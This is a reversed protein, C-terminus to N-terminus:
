TKIVDFTHPVKWNKDAGVLLGRKRAENELRLMRVGGVARRKKAGGRRIFNLINLLHRTEIKKIKLYQWDLTLWEDDKPKRPVLPRRSLGAMQDEPFDFFDCIDFDDM